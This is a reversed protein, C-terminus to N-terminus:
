PVRGTAPDLICAFHTFTNNIREDMMWGRLTEEDVATKDGSAEPGCHRTWKDNIVDMRDNSDQLWLEPHPTLPQSRLEAGYRSASFSDHNTQVIFRDDDRIRGTVLDKEVVVAHKGDCLTLYCPASRIAALKKASEILSSTTSIDALGQQQAFLTKGLISSVSPRFGLVVLLQHKKLAFNDCLHLPRYNLSISLDERVGTLVGMFGAYTVSTAIVNDPDESSDVYELVVVLDRLPDLGWDLTRFHMLRESSRDQGHVRVCGATCGMMVDLFVNLAVVLFLHCGAARSFGKIERTQEDDHVRRLFLRAAVKAVRALWRSGLMSELLEDFVHGLTRIRPGFTAAGHVYRHTTKEAKACEPRVRIEARRIPSIMDVLLQHHDPTPGSNAPRQALIPWYAHIRRDKMDTRVSALFVEVQQSSWGLGRTFLAMSLGSLEGAINHCCWFGIEKYYPDAPWRNTPWKYIVETVNVFGADIMQQRYEKASQASRGFVATAKMMLDSWQNIYSGEKLSNDDCEVPFAIDQCEIWGGPSLNDFSQRMFNPWNSVSGVLMRAFVLDFKYTFNWEDELDDVEFRLNSPLFNPQIPSLDIGIVQSMLEERSTSDFDIAWVGTGTGADLCRQIQKGKGAPCLFLHGGLTLTFLHHQLDAMTLLSELREQESPDNPLVYNVSVNAREVAESQSYSVRSELPIIHGGTRKGTISFVPDCRRRPALLMPRCGLASDNDSLDEIIQPSLSKSLRRSMVDIGVSPRRVEPTLPETETTSGNEPETHKAAVDEAGRRQVQATPTM